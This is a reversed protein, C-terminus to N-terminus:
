SDVMDDGRFETISTVCVNESTGYLETNYHMTSVCVARHLHQRFTSAMAIFEIHYVRTRGACGATDITSRM